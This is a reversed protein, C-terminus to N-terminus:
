TKILKALTYFRHVPDGIKSLVEDEKDRFGALTLTTKKVLLDIDQKAYLTFREGVFPLTEMYSKNAFTLVCIGGPKLVRALEQLLKRPMKWFYITNVTFVRDVTSDALPIDVGNYLHFQASTGTANKKAEEHMTASIDIGTYDIHQGITYIHELHGCNGHGIELLAMGDELDLWALSSLTMGINTENMKNGVEVGLEGTPCSLQQEIERIEKESLSKAM